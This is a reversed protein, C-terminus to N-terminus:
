INSKILNIFNNTIRATIGWIIYDEYKYFYVPYKGKRWNYARGNQILHYPFDDDVQPEIYMYYELPENEIFFNLPVTFIEEVEDYNFDISDTKLDKLLGVFPYISINFPTIIYDLEGIVTINEKSINLEEITERVAAEKYTESEEVMGGPFSIEGPQTDLNKSRVEYLIHLEDKIKILPLLVGYNREIGLPKGKRNSIKKQIYHIDM